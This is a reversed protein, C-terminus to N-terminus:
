VFACIVSFIVTNFDQLLKQKAPKYAMRKGFAEIIIVIEMVYKTEGYQESKEDLVKRWQVVMDYTEPLNMAPKAASSDVSDEFLWPVADVRFGHVGRDLWFRLVDQLM